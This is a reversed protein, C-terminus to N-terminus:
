FMPRPGLLRQAWTALAYVVVIALFVSKNPEKLRLGALLVLPVSNEFIRACVELFPYTALYFVIAGLEFIHQKLYSKPQSILLLLVSGWFLFGLGSVDKQVLTYEQFQRVRIWFSAWPIGFSVVIGAIGFTIVQLDIAFRLLKVIRSLVFLGVTFLFGIHVFPAMLLFVFRCWKKHSFWGILFLALAFGQRLHTIHNKLVQPVLLFLLVWIANKSDSRLMLYSVIFAPLFITIRLVYEPSVLGRLGANVLLWLPENSLLVLCGRAVYTRLIPLSYTAYNLYNGRDKFEMLPLSTLAMAYFLASILIFAKSFTDQRTKSKCCRESEKSSEMKM